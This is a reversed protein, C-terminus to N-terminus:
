WHLVMSMALGVLAFLCPGGVFAGHVRAQISDLNHLLYEEVATYLSDLLAFEPGASHRPPEMTSGLTALDAAAQSLSLSLWLCVRLATSAPLFSFLFSFFIFFLVLFSVNMRIIYRIAQRDGLQGARSAAYTIFSFSLPMPVCVYACIHLQIHIHTAQQSLRVRLEMQQGAANFACLATRLSILRALDFM